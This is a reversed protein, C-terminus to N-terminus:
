LVGGFISRIAWVTLIGTAVFTATAVLSRGSRRSLGCVGHGSTCGHGWRTGAGVLLGAGVLALTSRPMSSEFVPGILLRYALGAAVLGAVFYLRWGRDGGANFLSGAIGSVGAIRGHTWFLLTASLGIAAGGALGLAYDPNLVGSEVGRRSRPAGACAPM